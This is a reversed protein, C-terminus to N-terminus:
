ALILKREAVWLRLPTVCYAESVNYTRRKVIAAGFEAGANQMEVELEKMYSSLSIAKEDKAEVAHNRIGAIDGKDKAGTKVRRDAFEFGGVDRLYDAVAREWAAGKRGNPNAM